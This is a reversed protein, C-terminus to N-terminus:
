GVRQLQQQRREAVASGSERRAMRRLMGPAIALGVVAWIGLVAAAWQPRWIGAIEAAAATEPLLVWRVAHGLWYIPFGQAIWQVWEPLSIIPYFIGSIGTVLMVPLMVYLFLGNPSTTMSGVIAGAPLTALLGLAAIVILFLWGWLSADALEPVLLLGPLFIIAMSLLTGLAAVVIRSVFYGVMGNPTAKARLLTGDGREITLAGAASMIGGFAIQLGVLSPLTAMAVSMDTGEITANRQFFLVILFAVAFFIQFGIDEASALSQRFEKLGRSLGLRAAHSVPNM